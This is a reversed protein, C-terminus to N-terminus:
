WGFSKPLEGVAMTMVKLEKQLLGVVKSKQLPTARCCIVANVCTALQLFRSQVSTHLAFDLTPGDIILGVSFPCSRSGSTKSGRRLSRGPKGQFGVSPKIDDLISDMM